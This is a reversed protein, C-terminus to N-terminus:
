ESERPVIEFSHNVYKKGYIQNDSVLQKYKQIDRTKAVIGKSGIVVSYPPITGAVTCGMSIVSGEGIKTGPAISVNGGVWVNNEIVIPLDLLRNDFPVARLDKSDYNHSGAFCFVKPGLMCGNGIMILSNANIYCGDGILVDDGVILNQTNCLQCSGGLRVNEGLSKLKILKFGIRITNIQPYAGYFLRWKIGRM